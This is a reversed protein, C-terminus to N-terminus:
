INLVSRLRWEFESLMIATAGWVAQEEVRYYPVELEFGEFTWPEEVKSGDDVLMALTMEHVAAVENPDPIFTPRHDVTAVVPTVNYDSVPLYAQTLQGLIVSEDLCVSLEECTERLAAEVVTEGAELRGGPLSIQGRHHRLNETRRTLVFTWQGEKPYLLILVGAPRAAGTRQPARNLARPRPAMKRWASEADFDPLALAQRVTELTPLPRSTM